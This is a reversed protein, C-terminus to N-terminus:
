KMAIEVTKDVKNKVIFDELKPQVALDSQMNIYPFNIQTLRYGRDTVRFILKGKDIERYADHTRAMLLGVAKGTDCEVLTLHTDASLEVKYCGAPLVQQNAAFAFPVQVRARQASVSPILITATLLAALAAWLIVFRSKM